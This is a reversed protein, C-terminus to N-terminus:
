DLPLKGAWFLQMFADVVEPDFQKERQGQIEQVAEQLSFAKRHPQSHTLADFTDAMALIRGAIPIEEGKLGQPYGTGDWREHHTLAITEALKMLASKGGSLIEAGVGTHTKIVEFEAETLKGPKYLIGDPIAVKGVDHLRAARMILAVQEEPLGIARALLASTKAVRWIHERSEDDRYEAVKALRTLMEIHSTELQETREEIRQELHGEYRQVDLYYRRTKLLNKTRLRVEADDFPKSLFDNAGCVLVAQRHQPNEDASLVIVPFFEDEALFGKLQELVEYGNLYPMSLDLFVMDPKSRQFAEAVERPDNLVAIRKYGSRTLVHKLITSHTTNDDVILLQMGSLNDAQSQEEILDEPALRELTQSLSASM